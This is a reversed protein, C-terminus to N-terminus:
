TALQEIIGAVTQLIENIIPEVEEFGIGLVDFATNDTEISLGDTNMGSWIAIRDAAHVIFALQNGRFRSPRHHYEIAACIHKPFNWKQCVRAAIEAHDFGLIKKEADLFTENGDKLFDAFAEQREMIYKDLIIKGADHVLGASFAENALDPHKRSAVIRAGVAVSLSHRWLADSPLGYGKLAHGLLKATCAVTLLEGLVKLGLVVAADQISTAAKLRSYYASNSLRLVKMALAQDTEILNALDKLSSDPDALIKRAKEMIRPMSPLSEVDHLIASQLNKGKLSNEM